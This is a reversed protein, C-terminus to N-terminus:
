LTLRAIKHIVHRVSFFQINPKPKIAYSFVFHSRSVYEISSTSDSPSTSSDGDCTFKVKPIRRPVKKSDISDRGSDDNEQISSSASSDTIRDGSLPWQFPCKGQLRAFIKGVILLKLRHHRTINYWLCMAKVRGVFNMSKYEPHFNGLVQSSPYLAEAAELRTLLEEVERLALTQQEQCDKCYM